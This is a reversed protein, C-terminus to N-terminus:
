GAGRTPPSASSHHERLVMSMGGLGAGLSGEFSPAADRHPAPAGAANAKLPKPCRNRAEGGGDWALALSSGPLLLEVSVVAPTGLASSQHAAQDLCRWSAM